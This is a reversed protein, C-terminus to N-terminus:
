DFAVPPYTKGQSHINRDSNGEITLAYGAANFSADTGLILQKRPNPQKLAVEFSESLAKNLSDFTEKLDSTNNNPFESKLFRYFPNLEESFWPIKENYYNM